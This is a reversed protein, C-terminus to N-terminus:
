EDPDPDECEAGDCSFTLSTTNGDTVSIQETWCAYVKEVEGVYANSRMYLEYNGPALAFFAPEESSALGQYDDDVFVWIGFTLCDTFTLRIGTPMVEQTDDSCGALLVSMLALILITAGFQRM